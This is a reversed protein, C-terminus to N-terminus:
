HNEPMRRILYNAPVDSECTDQAVDYTEWYKWVFGYESQLRRRESDKGQNTLVQELRDLVALVEPHRWGYLALYAEVAMQLYQESAQLERHNQYIQGVMFIAAAHWHDVAESGAIALDLCLDIAEADRSQAEKLIGLRYTLMRCTWSDEPFLRSAHQKARLCLDEASALDGTSWLLRALGNQLEFYEDMSRDTSHYRARDSILQATPGLPLRTSFVKSVAMLMIVCIHDDGFSSRAVNIMYAMISARIEAYGKWADHNLESLLHLVLLGPRKIVTLVRNCVKHLMVFAEKKDRCLLDGAITIYDTLAGLEPTSEFPGQDWIWDCYIRMGRLFREAPQSGLSQRLAVPPWTRITLAKPGVAALSADDRHQRAGQKQRERVYWMIKHEPVARGDFRKAMEANGFGFRLRRQRALQEKEEQRLNELLGWKAFRKKYMQMTADFDYNRVMFLMVHELKMDQDIYLQEIIPRLEDWRAAPISPARSISLRVALEQAKTPVGQNQTSTNRAAKAPLQSKLADESSPADAVDPMGGPFAWAPLEVVAADVFWSPSTYAM